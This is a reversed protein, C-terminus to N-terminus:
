NIEVFYFSFFNLNTVEYDASNKVQSKNNAISRDLHHTQEDVHKFDEKGYKNVVSNSNGMM